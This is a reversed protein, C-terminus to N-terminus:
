SEEDDSLERVQVEVRRFESDFVWPESGESIEDLVAEGLREVRELVAAVGSKNVVVNWERRGFRVVVLQDADGEAAAVEGPDPVDVDLGIKQRLKRGWVVSQRGFTAWEYELWLAKAQADGFYAFRRLLDVPTQGKSKADARAVELGIGWTSDVGAVYSALTGDVTVREVDVGHVAHIQGVGRRTLERQWPVEVLSRLRAVECDNLQRDFCLLAHCHPHWGNSGYTIEAARIQGLYSSGVAFELWVRDHTVIKGFGFVPELLRKLPDSKSHPGTATVFVASGGRASLVDSGAQIELAARQRVVPMCVPCSWSSGCRWVGSVRAVLGRGVSVDVVVGSAFMCRRSSRALTIGRQVGKLVYRERRSQGRSLGKNKHNASARGKNGLLPESKLAFDQSLEVV